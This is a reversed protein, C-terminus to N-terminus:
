KIVSLGTIAKSDKPFSWSGTDFVIQEYLSNYRGLGHAYM